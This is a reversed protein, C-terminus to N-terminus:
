TVLFSLDKLPSFIPLIHDLITAISSISPVRLKAQSQHKQIGVSSPVSRFGHAYGRCLNGEWITKKPTNRTGGILRLPSPILIALSLRDPITKRV